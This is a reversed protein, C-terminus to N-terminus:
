VLAVFGVGDNTIENNDNYLTMPIERLKNAITIEEEVVSKRQHFEDGDVWYTKRDQADYGAFGVEPNIKIYSNDDCYFILGNKNFTSILRNSEDYLEIVGAENLKSGLKLTGGKIMDAVLNIVNISQMNLTGDISWASNFTGKIGNESFGIGEKNIRIVKRATEKPLSDLVLIQNGDYIVFSDTMLDTMKDTAEQLESQLKATVEVTSEQVKKDVTSTVNEILDKLKNKFNGFEIKEYKEHICDYEISIVNTILDVNCKPHSLHIVDGVDSVKDIYANVSYNVKPFKNEELYDLGKKRLDEILAEKYDEEDLEGNEDKYDDEIINDQQFTIIKSYPIDYLQESITLYVEPLVLGDKGVPLLKTVVDDWKEDVSLKEINKAYSIVIGNDQGVENRVEIKFNDRILHGNWRDVVVAIAEELTHRICRYSNVRPIDSIFTFPSVEDCNINLHDLADNCNKDVIYCDKILYNATDFYLHKGRISIRNGEIKPNELRFGQYGWPSNARIIMGQQYYQINDLNDKLDLYYDGNDEKHIRAKLPKLIKIGNDAFRKENSPYVSIM